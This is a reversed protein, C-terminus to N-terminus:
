EGKFPLKFKDSCMDDILEDAWIKRTDGGFLDIVAPLNENVSDFELWCENTCWELAETLHKGCRCTWLILKDGLKQRKKLYSVLKLNPEGIEPWNNTCLTGDFDVAIVNYGLEKM